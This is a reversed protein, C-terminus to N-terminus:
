RDIDEFSLQILSRYITLNPNVPLIKFHSQATPACYGTLYISISIVLSVPCLWALNEVRSTLTSAYAICNCKFSTLSLASINNKVVGLNEEM